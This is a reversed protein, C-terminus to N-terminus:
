LAADAQTTQLGALVRAGHRHGATAAKQHWREILDGLYSWGPPLFADVDAQISAPM